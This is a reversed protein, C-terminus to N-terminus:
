KSGSRMMGIVACFVIFETIFMALWISQVGAMMPLVMILVGSVVLGRAVSIIFAKNAQMTAQFYYTAYINFPMFVFASCYLRIITPAVALVSETPQMFLQVFGTPFARTVGVWLTSLVGITLVNYRFLERIREFTGGSFNASIIPQSAQGVGYACCQVFIAINVIVGYVALADSGLYKMIQVNFLMTLIGTSLDVFFTSFGVRVIRGMKHMIRKPVVLQLTNKSSRFHTLMMGVSLTAGLCTALGAGFIGQQWVFVFVVDGIINFAGGVMVAKTALGPNGDNRLFAAFYQMLLFMPLAVKVPLLYQKALVMLTEDAGLVSLIPGEFLILGGWLVSAILATLLLGVTFYGNASTADKSAGNKKISYFISGGIGTLLGFSFVVNWIPAIVAMTASGQPGHYQGVAMMDVLGYVSPLVAGGFSAVLYKFYTEKISGKTLDM